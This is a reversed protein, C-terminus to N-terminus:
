RAPKTGLWEALGAVYRPRSQLREKLAALAQEMPKAADPQLTAMYTEVKPVLAPDNSNDVVNALFRTRSSSDVLKEVEARHALVFDFAQEPHMGGVTAIIGASTGL